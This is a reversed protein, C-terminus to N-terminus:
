VRDRKLRRRKTEKEEGKNPTPRAVQHEVLMLVIARNNNAVAIDLPITESDDPLSADAGKDLLARVLDANGVETAFMLPTKGIKNQINVPAGHKLLLAAIHKHSDPTPSFRTVEHLATEGNSDQTPLSAGHEVLM